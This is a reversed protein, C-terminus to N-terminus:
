SNPVAVGSALVPSTPAPPDPANELTLAVTIPQGVASPMRDFYGVGSTDATFWGVPAPPQGEAIAWVEYVQSGTTPQLGSVVLRGHGSAPLVGLGGPGQGPGGASTLIAVQSGPQQALALVAAVRAQYDRASSLDRQLLVNWAGLAVIAFVAAIGIAWIQSSPRLRARADEFSLVRGAEGPGTGTRREADPAAPRPPVSAPAAPRAALDDAAASLIRARLSAPPEVLPVTEGLYPVVGALEAMEEHADSCTRLHEAVALEEDRELAGLMYAPALDRVQDCTLTMGAAM